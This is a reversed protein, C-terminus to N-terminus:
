GEKAEEVRSKARAQWHKTSNKNWIGYIKVLVGVHKGSGQLELMESGKVLTLSCINCGSNCDTIDAFLHM